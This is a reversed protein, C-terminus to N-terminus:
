VSKEMEPREIFRTEIFELDPKAQLADSLIPLVNRKSEVALTFTVESSYETYVISIENRQAFATFRKAHAFDTKLKYVDMPRAVIKDAASLADSAASSYARILGGAGLKIGGFYRVVAVLTEKLGSKKLAELIPQGATGSPEGDDSFRAVNGTRDFIAAYCVHTADYHRKKLARLKEATVKGVYLLKDAPQQWATRKYNEFGIEFQGDPKNLESGLKAFIKNWSIGVSATIGIEERIDARITEAIKRGGGFMAATQSIDLWCEDIGFAEIRDTFREYIRRVAKSVRLYDSFCAPVEILEPCKQKAQWLVDGTKVGACKAISNKALVVGHRQERDGCVAVPKEKLDPRKLIEVSAYFNDLDSHLIVRPLKEKSM